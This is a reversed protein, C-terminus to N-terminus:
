SGAPNRIELSQQTVPDTKRFKVSNGSYLFKGDKIMDCKLPLYRDPSKKEMFEDIKSLSDKKLEGSHILPNIKTYGFRSANKNNKTTRFFYDGLYHSKRQAGPVARSENYPLSETSYNSKNLFNTM